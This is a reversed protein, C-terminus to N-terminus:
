RTPADIRMSRLGICVRVCVCTWGVLDLGVRGLGFVHLEELAGLGPPAEHEVVEVPALRAPLPLPIALTRTRITRQPSTPRCGDTRQGGKARSPCRFVHRFVPGFGDILRRRLRRRPRRPRPPSSGRPAAPPPAPGRRTRSARASHGATGVSGPANPTTQPQFTRHHTHPRRRAGFGWFVFGM